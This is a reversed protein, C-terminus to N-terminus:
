PEEQWYHGPDDDDTTDDDSADHQSELWADHEAEAAARANEADLDRQMAALEAPSASWPEDQEELATALALHLDHLRNAREGLHRPYGADFAAQEATSYAREAAWVIAATIPVRPAVLLALQFIMEDLRATMTELQSAMANADRLIAQLTDNTATM